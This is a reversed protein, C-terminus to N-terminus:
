CFPSFGQWTKAETAYITARVTIWWGANALGPATPVNSSAQSDITVTQRPDSASFGNQKAYLCASDVPNAASALTSPCPKAQNCMWEISCTFSSGTMTRNFRYVAGLAASDAAAQASRQVYRMYGVDTVLGIFGIM